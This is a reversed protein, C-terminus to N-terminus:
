GCIVDVSPSTPPMSYGIITKTRSKPLSCRVCRTMAWSSPCMHNGIITPDSSVDYAQISSPTFVNM